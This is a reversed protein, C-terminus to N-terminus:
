TPRGTTTAMRLLDAASSFGNASLRDALALLSGHEAFAAAVDDVSVGRHNLGDAPQPGAAIGAGEAQNGAEIAVDCETDTGMSRNNLNASGVHLLVDDVIMVKAHVMTHATRSDQRVVPSVVRIRNAHGSDRGIQMFRIRETECVARRLGLRM